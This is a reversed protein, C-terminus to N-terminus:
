DPFTLLIDSSMLLMWAVFSFVAQIIFLWYNYKDNYHRM